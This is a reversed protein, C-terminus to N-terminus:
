SPIEPAGKRDVWMTATSKLTIRTASETVGEGLWWLSNSTTVVPREIMLPAGGTVVNFSDNRWIGSVWCGASYSHQTVAKYEGVGRVSPVFWLDTWAWTSGQSTATMSGGPIAGNNLYGISQTTSTWYPALPGVARSSAYAWVSNGSYRIIETPVRSLYTAGDTCWAPLTTNPPVYKWALDVFHGAQIVLSVQSGPYYSQPPHNQCDLCISYYASYGSPVTTSVTHQYAAPLNAVQYTAQAPGAVPSGNVSITAGPVTFLSNNVDLKTGRITVGSAAYTVEVTRQALQGFFEVGDEVMRWDFAYNGPEPPATANITFSVEQGPNVVPVPMELRSFGWKANNAPDESGLRHPRYPDYVSSTWTTNGSNRVTLTASFAQGPGVSAPASLNVLSAGNLTPPRYPLENLIGSVIYFSAEGRTVAADPCFWSSACGHDIVGQDRIKQIFRFYPNNSPVDSPFWPTWSYNTFYNDIYGIYNPHGPKLQSARITFIAAQYAATADDPCYLPPCGSCGTTIGADRIKQIYRFFVHQPRGLPDNAGPVDDFYPTSSYTFSDGYIARVIFVAMQGRTVVSGPCYQGPACGTTIGLQRMREVTNVFPMEWTVDSFYQAAAPLTFVLYLLWRRM